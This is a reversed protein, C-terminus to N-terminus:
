FDKNGTLYFVKMGRKRFTSAKKHNHWSIPCMRDIKANSGFVYYLPLCM